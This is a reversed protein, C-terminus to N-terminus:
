PAENKGPGCPCREGPRRPRGGDLFFLSERRFNKGMFMRQESRILADGEEGAIFVRIPRRLRRKAHHFIRALFASIIRALGINGERFHDRLAM